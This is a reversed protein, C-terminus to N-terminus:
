LLYGVGNFSDLDRIILSNVATMNMASIFSHSNKANFLLFRNSRAKIILDAARCHM